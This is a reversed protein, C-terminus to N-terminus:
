LKRQKDKPRWGRKDIWDILHATMACGLAFALIAEGAMAMMVYSNHVTVPDAPADSFM